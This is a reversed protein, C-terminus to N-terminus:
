MLNKSTMHLAFLVRFLYMPVENGPVTLVAHSQFIDKWDVPGM